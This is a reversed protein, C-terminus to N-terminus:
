ENATRRETIEYDKEILNQELATELTVIFHSHCDQDWKKVLDGGDSIFGSNPTKLRNWRVFDASRIYYRDEKRIYDWRSFEANYSFDPVEIKYKTRSGSYSRTGHYESAVYKPYVLDIRDKAIDVDLTAVDITYLRRYDTEAAGFSPIFGYRKPTCKELIDRTSAFAILNSDPSVGVYTPNTERWLYVKSLDKKNILAVAASGSGVRGLGKLGETQVWALLLESDVEGMYKYDKVKETRTCGGNHVMGWDKSVVPHNNNNDSPKGVTPARTHGIVVPAHCIIDKMKPMEEKAFSTPTGPKKNVVFEGAKTILMLGAADKGREESTIMLRQLMEYTAESPKKTIVGFIGCM